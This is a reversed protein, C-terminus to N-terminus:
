DCSQLPWHIVKANLKSHLLVGLVVGIATAGAVLHGEGLQVLATGPCAGSLAWGIGFITAGLITGKHIPRPSWMVTQRLLAKGGSKKLIAIVIIGGVTAVLGVGFLFFEQLTFMRFNADFSAAGNQSLIGGFITGMVLHAIRHKM